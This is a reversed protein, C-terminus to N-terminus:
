SLKQEAIVKEAARSFWWIALKRPATWTYASTCLLEAFGVARLRISNVATTGKSLAYRWAARDADLEFWLRFFALYIPFVLFIYLLFMIPLGVMPHIGFGCVRAQFTHRGEHPLLARVKAATWSEPYAQIHGITTGFSNVFSDRNFQGFSVIFLVWAIAKWFWSNKSVLRVAKDFQRAEQQLQEREILWSM